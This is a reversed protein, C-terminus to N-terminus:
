FFNLNIGLIIMFKLLYFQEKTYFLDYAVWISDYFVIIWALTM